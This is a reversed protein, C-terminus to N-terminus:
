RWRWCMPVMLPELTDFLIATVFIAGSLVGCLALFHTRGRGISPDSGEGRSRRWHSWSLWAAAGALALCALNIALLLAPEAGFGAARAQGAEGQTLTCADSSVAYSALIQLTWAAPAGALGAFLWGPPVRGHRPAPNAIRHELDSLASM